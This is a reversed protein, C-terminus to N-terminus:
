PKVPYHDYEDMGDWGAAQGAEWALLEREQDTWPGDDYSAHKTLREYVERRILVYTENTAGDRVLTDGGELAEHQQQTLEIM